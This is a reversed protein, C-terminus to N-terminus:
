VREPYRGCLYVLPSPFIRHIMDYIKKVVRCRCFQSKILDISSRSLSSPVRLKAPFKQTIIKM